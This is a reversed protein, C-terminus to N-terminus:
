GDSSGRKRSRQVKGVPTPARGSDVGKSHARPGPRFAPEDPEVKTLVLRRSRESYRYAFHRLFSHGLIPSENGTEEPIVACVVNKVILKGVSIAPIIMVKAMVKSGSALECSVTRGTPELRLEKALNAPIMTPNDGPDFVMRVPVHCNLMADIRDVGDERHLDVTDSRFLSEAWELWKVAAQFESSPGLKQKSKSSASLNALAQQIATDKACDAYEKQVKPVSERLEDIVQVFTGRLRGVEKAIQKKEAGVMDKPDSLNRMLMGLRRQERIIANLERQLLNRAVDAAAQGAPPGLNTLEQDIASVQQDLQSIQARYADIMAKRDHDGLEIAQEQNQAIALQNLLGKAARCNKLVRAEGAVIWTQSSARPRNLGRSKLHETPGIEQARAALTATSSLLHAPVAFWFLLCLYKQM